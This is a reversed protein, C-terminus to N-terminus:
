LERLYEIQHTIESIAEEIAEAKESLEQGRESDQIGEPLNEFAESEEEQITNLNGLLEEIQLCIAEINKRREKNM